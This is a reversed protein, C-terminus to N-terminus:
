YNHYRKTGCQAYKYERTLPYKLRPLQEKIFDGYAATREAPITNQFTTDLVYYLYYEVEGEPTCYVRDWLVISSDTTGWDFHNDKILNEVQKRYGLWINFLSDSEADNTATSLLNTYVTDLKEFDFAMRIEKESLNYVEPKIVEKESQKCGILFVALCIPLIFNKM